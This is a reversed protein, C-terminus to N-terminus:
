DEVWVSPDFGFRIRAYEVAAAVDPLRVGYWNEVASPAFHQLRVGEEGSEVIRFETEREFHMMAEDGLQALVRRDDGSPNPVIKLPRGRYRVYHMVAETRCKVPLPDLAQRAEAVLNLDRVEEEFPDADDAPQGALIRERAEATADPALGLAEAGKGFRSWIIEEAREFLARMLGSAREGSPAAAPEHRGAQRAAAVLLDGEYHCAELLPDHELIDIGLWITHEDGQRYTLMLDTDAPTWRALPV